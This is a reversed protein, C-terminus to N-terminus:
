HLLPCPSSYFLFKGLNALKPIAATCITTFTFIYVYLSQTSNKREVTRKSSGGLFLLGIDIERHVKNTHSRFFNRAEHKNIKVIWDSVTVTHYYVSQLPKNERFFRMEDARTVDNHVGM